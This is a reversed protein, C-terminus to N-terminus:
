RILNSEKDDILNKNIGTICAIAGAITFDKSFSVIKDAKSVIKGEIYKSKCLSIKGIKSRLTSSIILNRINIPLEGLKIQNNLEINDGNLSRVPFPFMHHIIGDIIIESKKSENFYEPYWTAANVAGEIPHVFGHRNFFDEKIIGSNQWPIEYLDHFIAIIVSLYQISLEKRSLKFAIAADSLIHEGLSTTDHHPYLSNDLRKKFEKHCILPSIITLFDRKENDNFDYKDWLKNLIYTITQNTFM